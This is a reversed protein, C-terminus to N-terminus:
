NRTFLYTETIYGLHVTGGADAAIRHLESTVRGRDDDGLVTMYSVSLVRDCLGAADLVQEHRVRQEGIPEFMDTTDLEARWREDRHEPAGHAYRAMVRSLELQLPQTLDRRNFLIGLGGGPRLVRCIERLAETGRFWHFAQGATVADATGTPLPIAEAVGDLLEASPVTGALRDRMAASPEVAILRAGTPVLAGTLKGTGAALDLVVSSRDLHFLSVLWDVAARPYGPRGRDYRDPANFGAAALKHVPPRPDKGSGPHSAPDPAVPGGGSASPVGGPDFGATAPNEGPAPVRSSPPGGLPRDEEPEGTV